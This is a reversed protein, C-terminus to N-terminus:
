DDREIRKEWHSPKQDKATVCVLCQVGGKNKCDECKYFNKANDGVNAERELVGDLMEMVREFADKQEASATYYIGEIIGAARTLVEKNVDTM